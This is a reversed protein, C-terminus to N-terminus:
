LPCSFVRGTEPRRRRPVLRLRLKEPMVKAAIANAMVGYNLLNPTNIVVAGGDGLCRAIEALARAPDELHEVVMNCTVFDFSGSAFPLAYLSGQVLMRMKRRSRLSVDMGIIVSCQEVLWDELPDLDTGLLHSGCGADLWRAGPHLHETILEAYAELQAAWKAGTLPKM